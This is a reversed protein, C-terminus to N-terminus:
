KQEKRSNLLITVLEQEASNLFVMKKTKETLNIELYIYPKGNKDTGSKLNTEFKM